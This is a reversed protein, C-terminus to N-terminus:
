VEIVDGGGSGVHRRWREAGGSTVRREREAEVVMKGTASQGWVGEFNSNRTNSADHVGSSSTRLAPERIGARKNYQLKPIEPCRTDLRSEEQKSTLVIAGHTSDARKRSQLESESETDTSKGCLVGVGVEVCAVLPAGLPAGM